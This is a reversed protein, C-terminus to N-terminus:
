QGLLLSAKQRLAKVEAELEAVLAEHRAIDASPDPQRLAKVQNQLSTMRSLLLKREADKEANLNTLKAVETELEKLEAAMGTRQTELKALNATQQQKRAELAAQDEAARKASAHEKELVARRSDLREQYGREGTSWYGILGGERPNSSTTCGALLCLTAAALVFIPTNRM